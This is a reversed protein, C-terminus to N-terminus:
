HTLLYLRCIGRYVFLALIGALLRESNMLLRAAVFSCFLIQVGL